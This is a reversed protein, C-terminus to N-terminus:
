LQKLINKCAETLSALAAPTNWKSSDAEGVPNSVGRLEIFNIQENLCVYFFAAGEMSEIQPHYKEIVEKRGDSTNEITQVTVGTARKFNQIVNEFFPSLTPMILAEDVFPFMNANLFASDFLTKFGTNTRFGLDGFYEKEVLAVSGDPFEDPTYSGATGINIIISYRNNEAEAEAIKKTLHYCTSTSGVGSLLFDVQVKSFIKSEYIKLAKIACDLEEQEAAAFLIRVM